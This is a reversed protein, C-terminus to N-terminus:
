MKRAIKDGKMAYMSLLTMETEEKQGTVINHRDVKRCISAEAV